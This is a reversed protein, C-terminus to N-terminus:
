TRERETGSDTTVHTAFHISSKKEL